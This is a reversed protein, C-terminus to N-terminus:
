SELDALRESFSKIYQQNGIEKSLKIAAGLLEYARDKEGQELAIQALLGTMDIVSHIHRFDERIIRAEEAYERASSLNGKQFEIQAFFGLVLGLAWRDGCERFYQECVQFQEYAEDIRGITLLTGGLRHRAFAVGWSDGSADYLRISTLYEEIAREHDEELDAIMGLSQHSYAMGNVGREGLSEWLALGKQQNTRAYESDGQMWGFHGAHYYLNALTEASYDDVALARELWLRSEVVWSRIRWYWSLASLLRGFQERQGDESSLFSLAARINDRELDLEDFWDEQEATHLHPRATQALDFFFKAHDDQVSALLGSGKLQEEGFIRLLSHVSYRGSKYDMKVMSRGALVSLMRFSAQTLAQAAQRTFEGRFVCLRAFVNREIKDLMQWSSDFVARMSRHRADAKFGSDALVEHNLTLEHLIDKLTMVDTWSALMELALPMGETLRCILVLNKKDEASFDPNIRRAHGVLLELAPYLSIDGTFNEEEPYRLGQIPFNQEEPLRLRERSTVLLSVSPASQVIQGLISAGELLHEFNDMVILMHKNALYALIQKLPDSHFPINLELASAISFPIHEVASLGVLPIFLASQGLKGYATMVTQALTSKGVGGPGTITVLRSEKLLQTLADLEPERGIISFAPAPPAHTKLRADVAKIEVDSPTTLKELMELSRVGRAIDVFLSQKDEPVELQSALQSALERSPRRADTELKKITNVSCYALDALGQQTLDLAKRRRRIWDGLSSIEGVM